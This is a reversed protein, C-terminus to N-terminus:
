ASVGELVRPEDDLVIVLPKDRRPAVITCAVSAGEALARALAHPLMADLRRTNCVFTSRNLRGVLSIQYLPSM